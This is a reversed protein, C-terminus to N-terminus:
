MIYLNFGVEASARFFYNPKKELYVTSISLSISALSKMNDQAYNIKKKDALGIQNSIIKPPGVWDYHLINRCYAWGIM